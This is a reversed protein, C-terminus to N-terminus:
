WNKIPTSQSSILKSLNFKSNPSRVIRSKTENPRPKTEYRRSSVLRYKNLLESVVDLRYRSLRTELRTTEHDTVM